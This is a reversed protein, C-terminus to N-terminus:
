GKIPQYPTNFIRTLYLVYEDINEPVIGNELDDYIEQPVAHQISQDIVGFNTNTWDNNTGINTIIALETSYGNGPNLNHLFKYEEDQLKTSMISTRLYIRRDFVPQNNVANGLLIEWVIQRIGNNSFAGRYLINVNYGGQILVEKYDPIVSGMTFLSCFWSYPEDPINIVKTNLLPHTKIDAMIVKVQENSIEPFGQSNNDLSIPPKTNIKQFTTTSQIIPTNEQTEAFIIPSQSVVIKDNTETISQIKNSVEVQLVPKTSDNTEPNNICATFILTLSICFLINALCKM